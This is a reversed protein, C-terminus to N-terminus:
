GVLRGTVHPSALPASRNRPFDGLRNRLTRHQRLATRLAQKRQEPAPATASVVPPSQGAREATGGLSAAPGSILCSGISSLYVV